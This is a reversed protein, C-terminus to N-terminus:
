PESRAPATDPLGLQRLYAAIAGIGDFRRRQGTRLDHVVFTPAHLEGEVHLLFTASAPAHRTIPDM